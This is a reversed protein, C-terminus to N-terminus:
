ILAYKCSMGSSEKTRSLKWDKGKRLTTASPLILLVEGKQRLLLYYYYDRYQIYRMGTCLCIIADHM